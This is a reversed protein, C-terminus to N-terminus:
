STHVLHTRFFEVVREGALMLEDTPGQFPHVAGLTHGAGEITLVEADPQWGALQRQADVPVSEDDSGHVLLLPCTLGRAAAEISHRDGDEFAHRAVPMLQKTRANPFPYYGKERLNAEIDPVNVVTTAISALTAVCRVRPERAAFLIADGGGRSHGLLGLPGPVHEALAHLDEQHRTPTDLLFLDLRDFDTREVGNHSFDFRVARLGAAAICEALWPFMGWDKFGKFGHAILVAPASPDGHSVARVPRGDSGSVEFEM